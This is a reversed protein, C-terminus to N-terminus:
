EDAEWIVNQSKLMDEFSSVCYLSIVKVIDLEGSSTLTSTGDDRINELSRWLKEGIGIKRGDIVAVFYRLGTRAEVVMGTELKPMDGYGTKSKATANEEESFEEFAEAPWVWEGCDELEYTNCKKYAKRIKVKKGCFEKMPEVISCRPSKIAEDTIEKNAKLSVVLKLFPFGQFIEKTGYKEAMSDWSRITVEDGVKFEKM